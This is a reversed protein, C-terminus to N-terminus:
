IRRTSAPTEVTHWPTTIGGGINFLWNSLGIGKNRHFSWIPNRRSPNAGAGACRVTLALVAAAHL